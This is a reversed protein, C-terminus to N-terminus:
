TSLLDLLCVLYTSVLSIRWTTGLLLFVLQRGAVLVVLCHLGTIIDERVREGKSDVPNASVHTPFGGYWCQYLFSIYLSDLSHSVWMSFETKAQGAGTPSDIRVHEHNRDSSGELGALWPSWIRQSVISFTNRQIWASEPYQTRSPKSHFKPTSGPEGTAQWATQQLIGMPWTCKGFKIESRKFPHTWSDRSIAKSGWLTAKDTQMGFFSRAQFKLMEWKFGKASALVMYLLRPNTVDGALECHLPSGWWCGAASICRPLAISDDSHCLKGVNQLVDCDQSWAWVGHLFSRFFATSPLVKSSVEQICKKSINTLVKYSVPDLKAAM